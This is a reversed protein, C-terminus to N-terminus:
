LQQKEEEKGKRKQKIDLIAYESNFIYITFGYPYLAVAHVIFAINFLRQPTYLGFKVSKHHGTHKKQKEQPVVTQLIPSIWWSGHGGCWPSELLTNCVNAVAEPFYSCSMDDCTFELDWLTRNPVQQRMQRGKSVSAITSLDTIILKPLISLTHEWNIGKKGM